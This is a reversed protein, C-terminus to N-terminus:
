WSFYFAGGHKEADIRVSYEGKEGLKVTEKGTKVDENRYYENGKKDCIVCSLRGQDTVFEASLETGEDVTFYYTKYGDLSEYEMSFASKTQNSICMTTVYHGTSRICGVACVALLLVVLFLLAKKM